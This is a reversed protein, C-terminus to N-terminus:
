GSGSRYLEGPSEIVSNLVKSYRGLTGSTFLTDGASEVLEAASQASSGAVTPTAQAAKDPVIDYGPVTQRIEEFVAKPNAPGLDFGMERAVLGFVDLAPKPGM